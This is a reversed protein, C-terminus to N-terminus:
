IYAAIVPVAFAKVVNVNVLTWTNYPAYVKVAFANVVRDIGASKVIPFSVPDCCATDANVGAPVNNDVIFIGSKVDIELVNLGVSAAKVLKVNVLRAVIPPINLKVAAVNVVKDKGAKAVIPPLKEGLQASAVVTVSVDNALIVPVIAADKGARAVNDNGANILTLLVNVIEAALKTVKEIPAVNFDIPPLKVIVPIFSLWALTSPIRTDRAAKSPM